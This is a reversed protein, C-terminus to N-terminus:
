CHREQRSVNNIFPNRHRLRALPVNYAGCTMGSYFYCVYTMLNILYVWKEFYCNVFTQDIMCEFCHACFRLELGVLAGEWNRCMSPSEDAPQHSYKGTM